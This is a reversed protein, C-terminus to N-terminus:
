KTARRRRRGLDRGCQVASGRRRDFRNLRGLEAGGRRSEPSALVSSKFVTDQRAGRGTPSSIRCDAEDAWALGYQNIARGGSGTPQVFDLMVTEPNKGALLALPLHLDPATAAPRRLGTLKPEFANHRLSLATEILAARAAIPELGHIRIEDPRSGHMAVARVKITATRRNIQCAGCRPM